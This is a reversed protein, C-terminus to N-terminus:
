MLYKEYPVGFLFGLEGPSTFKMLKKRSKLKLLEVVVREKAHLRDFMEKWEKRSRSPGHGQAFAAFGPKFIVFSPKKLLYTGPNWDIGRSADVSFNGDTDTLVEVAKHFYQPGNMSIAPKKYWVVVVVAGKLSEGTEADVVKGHYTGSPDYDGPATASCGWLSILVLFM